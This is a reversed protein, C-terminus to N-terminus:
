AARKRLQKAFREAMARAIRVVSLDTGSSRRCVTVSSYFPTAVGRPWQYRWDPVTPVIALTPVGLSGALHVVSTDVSIVLDCQAIAEATDYVDGFSEQQFPWDAPVDTEHGLNVFTVGQIPRVVPAFEEATLSREFDHWGRKAGQWCVGIRIFPAHARAQDLHRRVHLLSEPAIPKRVSLPSKVGALHPLSMAYVIAADEPIDRDETGGISFGLGAIWRHMLAPGYWVVPHESRQEVWPLWRAFLVADGIGQEHLVHVPEKTVGDWLRTRAPMTKGHLRAEHMAWGQEWKESIALRVHGQKEVAEPHEAKVAIMQKLARRSAVFQGTRALAQAYCSHAACAATPEDDPMKLSAAKAWPLADAYRGVGMLSQAYLVCALLPMEGRAAIWADGVRAAKAWQKSDHAEALADLAAKATLDLGTVPDRGPAPDVDIIGNM